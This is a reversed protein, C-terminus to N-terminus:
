DENTRVCEYMLEVARKLEDRNNPGYSLWKVLHLAENFLEADVEIFQSDM